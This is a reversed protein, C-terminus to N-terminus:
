NLGWPFLEMLNSCFWKSNHNSRNLGNSLKIKYTGMLEMYFGMKKYFLGEIDKIEIVMNLEM